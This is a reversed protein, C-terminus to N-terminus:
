SFEEIHDLVNQIVLVEAQHGGVSKALENGAIRRYHGLFPFLPVFVGFLFFAVAAYGVAVLWGQYRWFLVACLLQSATGVYALLGM